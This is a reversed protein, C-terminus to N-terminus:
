ADGSEEIKYRSSVRSGEFYTKEFSPRAKVAAWWRQVNPSNDWLYGLGIDEMRDITPVVCIDPLMMYDGCLWGNESLAAEMRVITMSLRDLSDNYKDAGFGNRGMERYMGKRLPRVDAQQEIEDDSKDRWMQVFVKNFSPIRIATTPVEELYRMWARMKARGMATDPSMPSQPFVEDLYEVIVSSDIVPTGDHLLTPVVGNPNLALYEPTLHDGRWFELETTQFALDKEWL